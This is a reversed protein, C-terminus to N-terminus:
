NITHVQKLDKYCLASLLLFSREPIKLQGTRSMASQNTRSVYQLLFFDPFHNRKFLYDNTLKLREFYHLFLWYGSFFLLELAERLKTM